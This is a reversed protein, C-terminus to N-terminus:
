PGVLLALANSFHSGKTSGPDRFWAQLYAARGALGFGQWWANADVTLAGDCQGLTGGSSQMGFMGFLTPM